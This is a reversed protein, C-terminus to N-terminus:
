QSEHSVYGADSCVLGQLALETPCPYLGDVFLEDAHRSCLHLGRQGRM